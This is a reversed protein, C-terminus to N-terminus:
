KNIRSLHGHLRWRRRVLTLTPRAHTSPDILKLINVFDIGAEGWCLKLKINLDAHGKRNLHIPLRFAKFEHLKNEWQPTFVRGYTAYRELVRTSTKIAKGLLCAKGQSLEIGLFTTSAGWFIIEGYLTIAFACWAQNRASQM